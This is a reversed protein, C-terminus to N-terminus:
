EEGSEAAYGEHAAPPRGMKPPQYVDLEDSTIIWSKGIKEGFRGQRCYRRVLSTSVGLYSAAQSVSYLNPM